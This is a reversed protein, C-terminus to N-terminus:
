GNASSALIRSCRLCYRAAFFDRLATSNDGTYSGVYKRAEGNGRYMDLKNKNQIFSDEARLNQISDVVTYEKGEIKVKQLNTM